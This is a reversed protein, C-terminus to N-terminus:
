TKVVPNPETSALFLPGKGGEELLWGQLSMMM